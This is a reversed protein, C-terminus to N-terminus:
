ILLDIDEILTFTFLGVGEKVAEKVYGIIELYVSPNNVVVCGASYLGIHSLINWASGRHFNIGHMGVDIKSTYDIINDKNDDRIVGLPRAQVLAEYKGNHKGLKWLEKHQGLPIIATGESNMPKLLYTDSPKTTGDVIIIRWGDNDSKAWRNQWFVVIKDNFKGTVKDTNRIGWLNLNRSLNNGVNTYITYGKKKAIRKLNSITILKDDIKM